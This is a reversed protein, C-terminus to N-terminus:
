RLLKTIAAAINMFELASGIARMCLRTTEMGSRAHPVSSLLFAISPRAKVYRVIYLVSPMTTLRNEMDDPTNIADSLSMEAKPAINM